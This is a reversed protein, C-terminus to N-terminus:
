TLSSMTHGGGFGGNGDGGDGGDGGDVGGGGFGGDGGGCGGDGGHFFREAVDDQQGAPRPKAETLMHDALVAMVVVLLLVRGWTM